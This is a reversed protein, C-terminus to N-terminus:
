TTPNKGSLTVWETTPIQGERLVRDEVSIIHGWESFQTQVSRFSIYGWPLTLVSM